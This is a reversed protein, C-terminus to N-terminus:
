EKDKNREKIRIAWKNEKKFKEYDIEPGFIKIFFDKLTKKKEPKKPSTSLVIPKIACVFM